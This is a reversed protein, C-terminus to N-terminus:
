IAERNISKPIRPPPGQPYRNTSFISQRLAQQEPSPSATMARDILGSKLKGSVYVKPRSYMAALDRITCDRDNRANENVGNRTLCRMVAFNNNMAAQHLPTDKMSTCAEIDAGASILMQAIDEAGATAAQHLPTAGLINLSRVSAGAQLLLGVMPTDKYYCAQHLPSWGDHNKQNVDVGCQVLDRAIMLLGGHVALFLSQSLNWSAPIQLGETRVRHRLERVCSGLKLAVLAQLPDSWQVLHFWHDTLFSWATQLSYLIQLSRTGHDLFMALLSTQSVQCDEAFRLHDPLFRVCYELLPLESFVINRAYNVSPNPFLRKDQTSRVLEVLSSYDALLAECARTADHETVKPEVWPLFSTSVVQATFRLLTMSASSIIHRRGLYHLCTMAIQHHCVGAVYHLDISPQLLHLGKRLLFEPVTQHIFQVVVPRSSLETTNKDALRKVELLGRSRSRIFREMQVGSEVYNESSKWSTFTTSSSHLDMQLAFCLELPSLRRLASIVWKFIEFTDYRDKDSLKHFINSYLDDLGSPTNSLAQMKRAISEGDNEAMLLNDTVLDVWLFVGDAQTLISKILLTNQSSKSMHALKQNIYREIDEKNESEVWIEPCNNLTINPYHRSSLCFCLQKLPRGANRLCLQEFYFLLSHLRERPGEDLADLLIMTPTWSDLSMLSRLIEMLEEVRWTLAEGEVFTRSGTNIFQVLLDRNQTFIQHLVTRLVGETSHELPVGGEDFFYAVITFPSSHSQSQLDKLTSKMLISKGAGAKGKLWLFDHDGKKWELYKPANRLWLGTGHCPANIMRQRDFMQPYGLSGLVPFNIM